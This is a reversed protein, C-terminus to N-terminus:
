TFFNTPFYNEHWASPKKEFNLLQHLFQVCLSDLQASKATARPHLYVEVPGLASLVGEFREM